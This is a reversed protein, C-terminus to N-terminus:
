DLVIESRMESLGVPFLNFLRSLKRILYNVKRKEKYMCVYM